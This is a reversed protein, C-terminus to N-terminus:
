AGKLQLLDFASHRRVVTRPVFRWLREAGPYADIDPGDLVLEVAGSLQLLTGQEFDAFALGALPNVAFNGLTNFFRNGSYDPVTLTGNQSARVFGAPGGRHSVDVQRGTDPLDVYSGVFFTEAREILSRADGDLVSLEERGDVPDTSAPRGVVHRVKIYKPCNGFVQATRIDMHSSASAVVKGNVRYRRRTAFDIGLLAVSEGSHLGKRAPDAESLATGISLTRTNPSSLFGPSGSVVTAWVLGEDDVSGIVLLSLCSFFIRQQESLQTHFIRSELGAFVQDAGITHQLAREGVHWRVVADAAFREIMTMAQAQRIANANM